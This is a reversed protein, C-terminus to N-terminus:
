RALLFLAATVDNASVNAGVFPDADSAGTFYNAAAGATYKTRPYAANNQVSYNLLLNGIQRLNSGCAARNAGERARAIAPLLLAMLVAIVGVVVMMETLTFARGLRCSVRRM